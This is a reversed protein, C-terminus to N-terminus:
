GVMACDTYRVRRAGQAAERGFGLVEGRRAPSPIQRERVMLCSLALYCTTSRVELQQADRTSPSLKSSGV